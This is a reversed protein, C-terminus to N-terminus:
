FKIWFWGVFIGPEVAIGFVIEVYTKIKIVFGLYGFIKCVSDEFVPNLLVFEVTKPKVEGFSKGL